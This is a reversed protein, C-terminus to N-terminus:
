ENSEGPKQDRSLKMPRGKEPVVTTSVKHEVTTLISQEAEHAAAREREGRDRTVAAQVGVMMGAATVAGVSM